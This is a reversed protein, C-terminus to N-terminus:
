KNEKTLHNVFKIVNIFKVVGIVLVIGGIGGVIYYLIDMWELESFFTKFALATSLLFVYGSFIIVFRFFEDFKKKIEISEEKTYYENELGEPIEDVTIDDYLNKKKRKM